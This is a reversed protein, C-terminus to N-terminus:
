VMRPLHKWSKPSLERNLITAHVLAGAAANVLDDHGGPAHDISDRGGRATRRELGQLQLSLRDIDLLECQQSNLLPLLDRYIESKSRETRKYRIGRKQFSEVVWEGAYRDGNVSTVRYAKLDRAFDIVVAEPSFPPKVERVLDLIAIGAKNQHAIAMTM